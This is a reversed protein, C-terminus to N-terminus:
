EGLMPEGASGPEADLMVAVLGRLADHLTELQGPTLRRLGDVLLGSHPGPARLLARRGETTAHLRVVRQDARDRVRRVLGGRVLANVLNSATTQHLALRESLGNMHIGACGAIEALAWLQSGPMGATRRALADHKRAAGFIVRLTRLAELALVVPAADRAAAM